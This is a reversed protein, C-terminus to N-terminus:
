VVVVSNNSMSLVVTMIIKGIANMGVGRRSRRAMSKTSLARTTTVPMMARTEISRFGCCGVYRDHYVV